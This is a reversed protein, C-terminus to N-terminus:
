GKFRLGPLNTTIELEEQGNNENFAINQLAKANQTAKEYYWVAKLGDVYGVFAMKRSKLALKLGQGKDLAWMNCGFKGPAVHEAEEGDLSGVADSGEFSETGYTHQM